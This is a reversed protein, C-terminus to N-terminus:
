REMMWTRILKAVSETEKSVTEEFDAVTRSDMEEREKIIEIFSKGPTVALAPLEKKEAAAAAVAVAAMAPPGGLAVPVLAPLGSAPLAPARMPRPKPPKRFIIGLLVMTLFLAMLAPILLPLLDWFRDAATKPEEKKRDPNLFAVYKVSLEDRGEKFGAAKAVIQKIDNMDDDLKKKDERFEREDVSNRKIFETDVLVAVSMRKLGGLMPEEKQYFKSTQVNDITTTKDYQAPGEPAMMPYGPINPNAGTVGGPRMNPGKFTERDRKTSVNVDRGGPGMHKYVESEKFKKDFDLECTVRAITNGIGYVEDLMTQIKRQFERSMKKEMEFRKKSVAGTGAKGEETDNLVNGTNDIVTVNESKLGPVAHSVFHVIGAVEDEKLTMSPRLKVRVSATKEQEKESYLEEKPIALQVQASDVQELAEINQAIRAELFQRQKQEIVKDSDTFEPKFADMAMSSGKKPLGKTALFIRDQAAENKPVLIVSGGKDPRYKRGEAKLTQAIAGADEMTLDPYLSEEEPHLSWFLIFVFGLIFLLAAIGLIVKQSQTLRTWFEIAQARLRQFFEPM